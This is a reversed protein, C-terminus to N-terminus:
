MWKCFCLVPPCNGDLGAANAKQHITTKAVTAPQLVTTPTPRVMAVCQNGSSPVSVLVRVKKQDRVYMVPLWVNTPTPRVMAASRNCNKLVGAHVLFKLARKRHPVIDTANSIDPTARNQLWNTKPFPVITDLPTTSPCHSASRPQSVLRRNLRRSITPVRGNFRSQIGLVLLKKELDLILLRHNPSACHCTAM